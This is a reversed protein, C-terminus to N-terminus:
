QQASQKSHNIIKREENFLWTYLRSALFDLKQILNLQCGLFVFGMMMEGNFEPTKYPIFNLGKPVPLLFPVSKVISRVVIVILVLAICQYIVEKRIEAVPKKPDYHPFSFDLSVGGIFAAVMYLIGYQISEFIHYMRTLAKM